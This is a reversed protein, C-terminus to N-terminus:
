PPFPSHGGLGTIFVLGKNNPKSCSGPVNIDLMSKCGLQHFVAEELNHTDLHLVTQRISEGLINSHVDIAGVSRHIQSPLRVRHRGVMM